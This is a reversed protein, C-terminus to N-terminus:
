GHLEYFGGLIMGYVVHSVLAVLPTRRGYHLGMFGPPQLQRTPTPGQRESAMRPHLGPLIPLIVLLVFAGHLLGAAAGIWWTARGLAEFGVAYLVAFAWGNVLHILFGLPLARDRNSTIMSGLIFPMGMRTLGLGHSAAITSTMVVTAVFGWLGISAANV